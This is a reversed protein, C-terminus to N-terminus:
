GTSCPLIGGCGFPWYYHDPPRTLSFALSAEGTPLRGRYSGSRAAPLRAFVIGYRNAKLTAVSRWRSGVQRQVTVTRPKGWPTRAWVTVGSAGGLAVFPFRFARLALKPKDRALSPGSDLYLGSQFESTKIPDDRLQFWTVLSVGASWMRFLAEAVWRAHLKAPVAIPDPPSSDWSFETVWFRIKQRSLITHRAIAADLVRRMAPLDGLSADGPNTAKHTPGGTTYPHDAWVDFKVKAALFGKMFTLPPLAVAKFGFPSVGGAIVVNDRHVAHVADAFANVLSRYLDPSLPNLFSNFNPENWAQWYRVRPLGAIGGGYRKAAARAFIAFQRADPRRTGPAGDVTTDEAWEPALVICVIPTLGNRVALRLQRDFGGWQYAPDSPNAPDFGPPRTKSDSGPAVYKWYLILRVATAGAGHIRTFAVAPANPAGLLTPDLLATQLPRNAPLQRVLPASGTRSAGFSAAAFAAVLACALAVPLLRRYRRRSDPMLRPPM